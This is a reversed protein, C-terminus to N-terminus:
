TLRGAKSEIGKTNKAVWELMKSQKKLFSAKKADSLGEAKDLWKLMNAQTKFFKSKGVDSMKETGKAWNLMAAHSAM